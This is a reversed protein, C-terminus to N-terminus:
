VFRKPTIQMDLLVTLSNTRVPSPVVSRVPFCKLTLLLSQRPSATAVHTNYIMGGVLNSTVTKFYLSLNEMMVNSIHIDIPLINVLTDVKEIFEKIFLTMPLFDESLFANFNSFQM